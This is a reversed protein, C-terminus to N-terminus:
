DYYDYVNKDRKNEDEMLYIIPPVVILLFICVPVLVCIAFVYAFDMIGGKRKNKM